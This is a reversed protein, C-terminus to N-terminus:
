CPRLDGLGVQRIQRLLIDRLTLEEPVHSIGAIVSEWSHIFTSLGDNILSVKLLDEVSYLAGVKQNTKFSQEFIGVCRGAESPGQSQVESEKNYSVIQRALGGKVVKSVAFLLKTDLTLFKEPNSLGELTQDKTCM